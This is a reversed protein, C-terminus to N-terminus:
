YSYTVHPLKYIEPVEVVIDGKLECQCALRENSGLKGQNKFKEENKTPPGLNQMGELVIMKCTTCNGKKGCAHMWDVFNEHIVEIVKPSRAATNIKKQNLNKIIIDGMCCNFM